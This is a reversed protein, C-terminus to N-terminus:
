RTGGEAHPAPCCSRSGGLDGVADPVSPVAARVAALGEAHAHYYVRRARRRTGVLGADRMVKLHFSLRSTPVALEEELECHCREGRHVLFELVRLRTPDAVVKLLEVREAVDGPEVPTPVAASSTGVMAPVYAGALAVGRTM